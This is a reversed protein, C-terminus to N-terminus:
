KKETQAFHLIYYQTVSFTWYLVRATSIQVLVAFVVNPIIEVQQLIYLYLYLM